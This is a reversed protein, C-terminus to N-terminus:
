IVVQSLQRDVDAKGIAYVNIIKNTTTDRIVKFWRRCGHDHCWQEEFLGKPNAHFFLYEGWAQDDLNLSNKPYPRNAQGGCSFETQNRLGCWPCKIEFM